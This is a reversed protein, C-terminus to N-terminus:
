DNLNNRIFRSSIKINAYFEYILMFFLLWLASDWYFIKSMFIPLSILTIVFNTLKTFLVIYIILFLLTFIMGFVIALNLLLGADQLGAIGQKFKPAFGEGVILFHDYTNYFKEYATKKSGTSGSGGNRELKEIGYQVAYSNKITDFSYFLAFFVIAVIFIKKVPSINSLQTLLLIALLYISFIMGWLSNTLILSIAIFFLLKVPLKKTLFLYLSTLLFMYNSYTGPEIYMGGMRILNDFQVETAIRAKSFPFVFEHLLLIEGTLFFYIVQFYVMIVSIVILMVLAQEFYSRFKKNHYLAPALVVAFLLATMFLPIAQGYSIFFLLSSFFVMVVLFIGSVKSFQFKYSYFAYLMLLVLFILHIRSSVTFSSAEFPVLGYLLCIFIFVIKLYDSLSKHIM